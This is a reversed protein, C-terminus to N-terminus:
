EKLLNSPLGARLREEKLTQALCFADSEMKFKDREPTGLPGYEADLLEDFTSAQMIKEKKVKDMKKTM